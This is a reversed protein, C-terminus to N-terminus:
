SLSIIYCKFIVQVDQDDECAALANELAGAATKDESQVPAPEVSSTPAERRSEVIESMRQAATELTQDINFIDQITTQLIVL